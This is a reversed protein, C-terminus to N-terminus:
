KYMGRRRLEAEFYLTWEKLAHRNQMGGLKDRVRKLQMRVKHNSQGTKKAVVYHPLGLASQFAARLEGDTLTAVLRRAELVAAEGRLEM